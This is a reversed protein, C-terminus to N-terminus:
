WATKLKSFNGGISTLCIGMAVPSSLIIADKFPEFPSDSVAVGLAVGLHTGDVTSVYYQFKV